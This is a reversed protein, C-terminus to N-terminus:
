RRRTARWQRIRRIAYETAEHTIAFVTGSVASAMFLMVLGERNLLYIDYIWQKM